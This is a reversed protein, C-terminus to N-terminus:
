KRIKPFFRGTKSAYEDYIAGFKDRLMKEEERAQYPLALFGILGLFITWAGTALFIFVNEFIGAIYAPHRVYRYPGGTAIVYNTEKIQSICATYNVNYIFTLSVWIGLLWLGIVGIWYVWIPLNIFFIYIWFGFIYRFTIDILIIYSYLIGFGVAIQPLRRGSTQKNNKSATKSVTICGKPLHNGRIRKIIPPLIFKLTWIGFITFLYTFIDLM